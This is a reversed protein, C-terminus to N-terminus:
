FWALSVRPVCYVDTEQQIGWGETFPLIVGGGWWFGHVNLRTALPPLICVFSLKSLKM